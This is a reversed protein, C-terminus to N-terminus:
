RMWFGHAKIRNRIAQERRPLASRDFLARVKQGRGQYIMRKIPEHQKLIKKIRNPAACAEVMEIVADSERAYLLPFMRYHCSIRGDLLGGPLADRGGGLGHVVLPLAIQDLWPDLSQCTLEVPPDDRISRAYDLYREGFEKPCRYFFYGANFYLYREWYEEPHETALSSAFDLGFRDYLSKWIGHYGPGYLTPTPWSGERRLSAGPYSFDFPVETLDGTILTDSDFFVFPQGEPLAVLAEIKNGQPYSQGFVQNEFPLIEAGLEGLMDLVASDRISPDRDWLPGANPVAVFLRGEFDPNTHRLTAAFLLCEYQLRGSQGIILINFAQRPHQKKAM